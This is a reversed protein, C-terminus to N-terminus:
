PLDPLGDESVFSAAASGAESPPRRTTSAAFANVEALTPRERLITMRLRGIKKCEGALEATTSCRVDNAKLIRDGPKVQRTPNEMNWQAALGGTIERILLGAGSDREINFGVRSGDTKNLLIVYEIAPPANSQPQTSAQPPKRSSAQVMRETGCSGSSRQDEPNSSWTNNHGANSGLSNRSSRVPAVFSDEDDEMSTTASARSSRGGSLRSPRVSSSPLVSAVLAQADSGGGDGDVDEDDPEIGLTALIDDWPKLQEGSPARPKPQQQQQQQREQQLQQQQRQQHQPQQHQVVGEERRRALAEAKAREEAEAKAQAEAEAARRQAELRAQEAAQAERRARAAEEEKQQKETEERVRAEAEALAKAEAEVREREAREREVREREVREREAREREVRDREARERDAREQEALEREVREREAAEERAQAEAEAKAKAEAAAKARAEAEAKARAEAEITAQREEDEQARIRAEDRARANALLREQADERVPSDAQRFPPVQHQYIGSSEERSCARSRPVDLDRGGAHGRPWSSSGAAARGPATLSLDGGGSASAFSFEFDPSTSRDEARLPPSRAWSGIGTSTRPHGLPQRHELEGCGSSLAFPQAAGVDQPSLRPSSRRTAFRSGQPPTCPSGGLNVPRRASLPAVSVDAGPRREPSALRQRMSQTDAELAALRRWVAAASAEDNDEAQRAQEARELADVRMDLAQVVEWYTQEEGSARAELEAVCEATHRLLGPERTGRTGRFSPTGKTVVEEAAKVRETVERGLGAVSHGIAEEAARVRQEVMEALAGGLLDEAVSRSAEEARKRMEAAMLEANREERSRRERDLDEVQRQLSRRLEEEFGEVARQLFHKSAEHDRRVTDTLAAIRRHLDALQHPVKAQNPGVASELKRQFEGYCAEAEQRASSAAAAAAAEAAAAASTAEAIAEASARSAVQTAAEAATAAAAEAARLRGDFSKVKRDLGLMTQAQVDMLEKAEAQRDNVRRLAEELEARTGACRRVELAHAARRCAELDLLPAEPSAPPTTGSPGVGSGNCNGNGIHFTFGPGPGHGSAATDVHGVTTVPVEVEVRKASAGRRPSSVIGSIAGEDGGGYAAGYGHHSTGNSPRRPSHSVCCCAHGGGAPPPAGAVAVSARGLSGASGRASRPAAFVGKDVQAGLRALNEEAQQLYASVSSGRQLMAGRGM